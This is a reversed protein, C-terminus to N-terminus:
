RRANHNEAQVVKEKQSWGSPSKIEHLLIKKANIALDTPGYILAIAPDVAENYATAIQQLKGVIQDSLPVQRM